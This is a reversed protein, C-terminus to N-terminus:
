AAAGDGAHAPKHEIAGEEGTRRVARMAHEVGLEFANIEERVRGAHDIVSGDCRVRLTDEVLRSDWPEPVPLPAIRGGEGADPLPDIAAVGCATLWRDTFARMDGVSADCKIMRPVIWPLPVAAGEAGRADFVSQMRDLVSEFRDVGTMREYVERTDALVDVSLVGLGSEVIGRADHHESLLDTRLEVCSMGMEDGLSVFDLADPRMLPDGAGAILLTCDERLDVASRMMERARALSILPREDLELGGRRTRGYIGSSLRGTCLELVLRGPGVRRASRSARVFHEAIEAGPATDIRDGLARRVAAVARRGHDTDAAVRVGADRVARDIPVCQPSAIADARPERPNYAILSGISCLVSGARAREALNSAMRASVLCGGMGPAAQSFVLDNHAPEGKYAAAVLDVLAPDVLSWEAGVLVAAGLSREDMVRSLAVPDLSEDYCTLGALSGRWCARSASRALGAARTRMRLAAADCTEIRIHERPVAGIMAKVRDPEPTVVTVGEIERCLALRDLTRSLANDDGMIPAGLDRRTGMPGIEPDAFVVAEVRAGRREGGTVAEPQADDERRTIKPATGDLVGGVRELLRRVQRAADKVGLVNEKDRRLQRTQRQAPSLDESLAIERDTRFRSLGGKQNIFGVMAMAPELARVRDRIEHIKRVTRDIAAADGEKAIARDLLEITRKSHKEITGLQGAVHAVRRRVREAHDADDIRHASLDPLEVREQSLCGDLAERLTMVETHAIRAGGESADIIRVGRDNTARKFEAEFQAIYATMQEDSYMPNGNVDTRQRLNSRMRMVREFELMELSRHESLEGGWVRHIAAGAGYYLGDSFGLDQGTLIVASCGLHRALYYNLHAVTSGAPIAGMDRTLEDGLLLDLQAERACVIEGPFTEAIAANAKPEVVLRVGEVDERTLGEYFRTSIADHDLATVFHPRIGRELLPKLMTQVAIIVARERVSPDELLHLNKALSPGAAVLIAPRGACSGALPTIGACTTYHDLNMFFNRMTVGAHALLTVVHTRTTGVVEILTRGFDGSAPGVRRASPPHDVLKVGTAMLGELGKMASSLSARDGPDTILVFPCRGLWASHDIRALVARLLGVDPECCVIVSKHKHAASLAGLHHGAGFGTVGFFAAAHPDVGRAWAQAERIPRRKSCQAVGDILLAPAGDDTEVFGASASPATERIRAAADPNRAAILALNRELIGQDAAATQHEPTM